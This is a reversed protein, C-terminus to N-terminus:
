NRGRWWRGVCRWAEKLDISVGWLGPKLTFVEGAKPASKSERTGPTEKSRVWERALDQVQPAGVLRYPDSQLDHKVRDLGLKEWADFRSIRGEQSIESAAAFSISTGWIQGVQNNTDNAIPCDHITCDSVMRRDPTSAIVVDRLCKAVFPRLHHLFFTTLCAYSDTHSLSM